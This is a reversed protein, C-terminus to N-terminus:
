NSIGLRHGELGLNPIFRTFYDAATVQHRYEAPLTPKRGVRYKTCVFRLNILTTGLFEKRAVSEATTVPEKPARAKQSKDEKQNGTFFERRQFPVERLGEKKVPLLIVHILHITM